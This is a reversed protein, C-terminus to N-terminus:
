IEHVQDFEGAHVGATFASWEAATFRLRPGNPDKSDRVAVGGGALAAVEVCNGNYASASSKRWVLNSEHQTTM